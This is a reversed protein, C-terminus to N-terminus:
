LLLVQLLAITEGTSSDIGLKTLAGRLERASIGGSSDVDAAEFADLM